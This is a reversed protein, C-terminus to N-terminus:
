TKKIDHMSILAIIFSIVFISLTTASVTKMIHAVIKMATFTSFTDLVLFLIKANQLSIKNLSLLAKPIAKSLTEIPFGLVATSIFFLILSLISNYRFGFIHMILGGFASIVFIVSLVIFSIIIFSCFSALIKKINKM